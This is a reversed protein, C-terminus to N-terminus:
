MGDIRWIGDESRLMYIMFLRVGDPTDRALTLEALDGNFTVEKVEGLQDVIAALSPQLQTFIANYKDYASGTFATMAGAINGARLRTLMADYIGLLKAQLIQPIRVVISRSTSYIVHDQDDYVKLVALWTGEPYTATVTMKGDVFQAPTLILNPYGDNDLDFLMQKFPTNTPNEITFTVELSELGETPSAHVVFPGTGTSNVIITQSASQGAQTTVEVKVTNSGPLLPVENANFRGLDDIHTVSGNVTVAANAPASVFGRILLNDDDVTAGVIAPDISISAGASVAIM